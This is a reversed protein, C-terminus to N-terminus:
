AQARARRAGFALFAAVTLAALTVAGGALTSWPRFRFTVRHRGAPLAVARFAYDASRIPVARGDVDASWGPYVADSTIAICAAACTVDLRM